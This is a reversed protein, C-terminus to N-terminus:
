PLPLPIVDVFVFGKAQRMATKHDSLAKWDADAALRVRTDRKATESNALAASDTYELVLISTWPTEAPDEQYPHCQYFVYGSLVGAEGWGKLQPEVYGKVYREYTPNDVASSYLAIVYAAKGADHRQTEGRCVPYMLSTRVPRGLALGEASLGGPMLREVEDWRALDTFQALNVIVMADFGGVGLETYPCFLIQCDQLVGEKKWQAFQRAGKTEMFVRFAARTEPRIKYTIVVSTPGNNQVQALASSALGGVAALISIILSWIFFKM